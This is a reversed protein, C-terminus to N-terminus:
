MLATLILIIVYVSFVGTTGRSHKRLPLTRIYSAAKDDLNNLARIDPSARDKFSSDKLVICRYLVDLPCNHM